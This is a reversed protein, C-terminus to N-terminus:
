FVEIISIATEFIWLPDNFNHHHWALKAVHWFILARYIIILAKHFKSQKYREYKEVIRSALQKIM